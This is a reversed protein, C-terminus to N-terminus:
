LGLGTTDSVLIWKNTYKYYVLNDSSQLVMSGVAGGTTDGARLIIKRVYITSDVTFGSDAFSFISGITLAAGTAGIKNSKTDSDIYLSSDLTIGSDAITVPNGITLKGGSAKLGFSKTDSDIYLSSDIFLGSDGLTLRTTGAIKLVINTPSFTTVGSGNIALELSDDVSEYFGVDGDGFRLRPAASWDGVPAHVVISSDAHLTDVPLITYYNVLQAFSSSIVNDIRKITPNGSYFSFLYTFIMFALIYSFIKKM